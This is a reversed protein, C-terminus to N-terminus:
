YIPRGSALGMVTYFSRFGELVTETTFAVTRGDVRKTGPCYMARDAMDATMLTMTWDSPGDIRYPTLSGQRARALAEAVGRRLRRTTEHSSLLVASNRSVGEKVTVAVADPLLANVERAVKDDGSVLGVPVGYYGAVAANIGTEGVERGNLIVRFIEGSYTHDMVAAATGAMAHYGVFLALDADKVGQNMSLAKTGGSILRVGPPVQDWLVNLMGDHSDNVVIEGDLDPAGRLETLVADLDQMLALRGREYQDQGPLLQRREVIGSIGEMDVSVWVRMM